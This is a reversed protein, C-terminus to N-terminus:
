GSQFSSKEPGVRAVIPALKETDLAYFEAANEGLMKGIEDDPLGDMTDHMQQRTFPWAGEPHPYDSGWM